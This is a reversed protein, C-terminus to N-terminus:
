FSDLPIINDGAEVQEAPVVYDIYTIAHMELLTETLYAINGRNNKRKTPYWMTDAKVNDDFILEPLVAKKKKTLALCCSKHLHQLQKTTLKSLKDLSPLCEPADTLHGNLCLSVKSSNIQKTPAWIPNRNKDLRGTDIRTNEQKVTRPDIHAVPRLQIPKRNTPENTDYM